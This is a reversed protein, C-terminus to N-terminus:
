AALRIPATSPHRARLSRPHTQRYADNCMQGLNRELPGSVRSRACHEGPMCRDTYPAWRVMRAFGQHGRAPRLRRCGSAVSRSRASPRHSSSRDRRHAGTIVLRSCWARASGPYVARRAMPDLPWVSERATDNPMQRMGQPGNIAYALPPAHFLEEATYPYRVATAVAGSRVSRGSRGVGHAGHGGTGCCRLMSETRRGRRTPCCPDGCRTSRRGGGGHDRGRRGPGGV